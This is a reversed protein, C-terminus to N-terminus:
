RHRRGMSYRSCIALPFQHHEHQFFPLVFETTQSHRRFRDFQLEIEQATMGPAPVTVEAAPVAIQPNEERPTMLLGALGIALVAPIIVLILKSEIFYNALVQAINFSNKSM